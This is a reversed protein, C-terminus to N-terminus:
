KKEWGEGIKVLAIKASRYSDYVKKHFIDGYPTRATLSFKDRWPKISATCGYFDHYFEAKM